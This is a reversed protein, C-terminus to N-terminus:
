LEPFDIEPFDNFMEEPKREQISDAIHLAVADKYENTLEVKSFKRGTRNVLVLFVKNNGEDINMILYENWFNFYGRHAFFFQKGEETQEIKYYPLIMNVGQEAKPNRLDYFISDYKELVDAADMGSALDEIAQKLYKCITEHNPERGAYAINRIIHTLEDAVACNSLSAVKNQLGLEESINNLITAYDKYTNFCKSALSALINTIITRM